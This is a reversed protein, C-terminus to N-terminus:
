RTAVCRYGHIISQSFWNQFLLVRTFFPFLKVEDNEGSM